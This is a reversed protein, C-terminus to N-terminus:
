TSMSAGCVASRGETAAGMCERAAPGVSGTLSRGPEITRSEPGRGKTAPHPTSGSTLAEGSAPDQRGALPDDCEDTVSCQMDGMSAGGYKPGAASPGSSDLQGGHPPCWVSVIDGTLLDGKTISVHAAPRGATTAMTM